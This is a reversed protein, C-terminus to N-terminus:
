KWALVDNIEQQISPLSDLINLCFGELRNRTKRAKNVDDDDKEYLELEAIKGELNGNLPEFMLFKAKLSQM